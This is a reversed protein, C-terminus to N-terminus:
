YHLFLFCSTVYLVILVFIMRAHKLLMLSVTCNVVANIVSLAVFLQLELSM